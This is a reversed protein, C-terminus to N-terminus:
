LSFSHFMIQLQHARVVVDFVEKNKCCQYAAALQEIKFLQCGSHGAKSCEAEHRGNYVDDVIDTVLLFVPLVGGFTVAGDGGSRHGDFTGPCQSRRQQENGNDAVADGEMGSCSRQQREIQHQVQCVAEAQLIDGNHVNGNQHCTKQDADKVTGKYRPDGNGVPQIQRDNGQGKIESQALASVFQLM